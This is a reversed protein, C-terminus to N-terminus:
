CPWTLGLGSSDYVPQDQNVVAISEGKSARCDSGQKMELHRQSLTPGITDDLATQLHRAYLGATMRSLSLDYTTAQECFAIARRWCSTTVGGFKDHRCVQHTMHHYHLNVFPMWSIFEKRTVRQHHAVLIVVDPQWLHVLKSFDEAENKTTLTAVLVGNWPPRHPPLKMAQALPDPYLVHVLHKVNGGPCVFAEM